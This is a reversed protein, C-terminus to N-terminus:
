AFAPRYKRYHLILWILQLAGVAAAVGVASLM